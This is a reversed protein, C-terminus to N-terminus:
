SSREDFERSELMLLDVNEKKITFVWCDDPQPELEFWQSAYIMASALHTAKEEGYIAYDVTTLERLLNTM